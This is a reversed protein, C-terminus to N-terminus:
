SSPEYTPYPPAQNITVGYISAPLIIDAVSVKGRYEKRGRSPPWLQHQRIEVVEVYPFFCLVKHKARLREEGELPISLSRLHDSLWVLGEPRRVERDCTWRVYAALVELGIGGQWDPPQGAFLLLVEGLSCGQDTLWDAMIEPPEHAALAAALAPHDLTIM